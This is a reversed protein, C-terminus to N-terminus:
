HIEATIPTLKVCRVCVPLGSLVGPTIGSNVFVHVPLNSVLLIFHVLAAPYFLIQALTIYMM